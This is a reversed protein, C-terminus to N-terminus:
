GKAQDGALLRLPVSARGIGVQKSRDSIFVPKPIQDELGKAGNDREFQGTLRAPECNGQKLHAMYLQEFEKRRYKWDELTWESVRIWGGMDEVARAIAGDEFVVSDWYAHHRLTEMLTQYAIRVRDDAKGEAAERIEAIRPLGSYTRTEILVRCAAKFKEAEWAKFADFYIQTLAESPQANFYECLVSFVFTFERVTM